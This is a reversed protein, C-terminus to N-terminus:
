IKGFIAAIILSINGIRSQRYIGSRAFNILRPMLSRQRANSFLNLRHLNEPTLRHELKRLAAINASNWEKQRGQWLKRLRDLRGSWSFDVGVLNAGHQRYRLAPIPDCYVKGGCGSVALYAWWDHYVIGLRSGAQKLLARAAHNFVMTNGGAINQVLANAFCADPYYPSLGIEHNGADVMTTRACYLAPTDAPVSELWRLARELKDREWIDDQDSYAYYAAQIAEHCSLSLFNAAFGAAPGRLLSLRGAPWLRQYGELIARTADSSGDDSAWVEWDAHTQAAYSDLQQALHQEGNYTGLLIAVKRGM